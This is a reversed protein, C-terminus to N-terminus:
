LTVYRFVSYLLSDNIEWCHHKTPPMDITIYCNHLWRAFAESDPSTKTATVAVDLTGTCCCQVGPKVQPVPKRHTNYYGPGVPKRHTNYYGPSCWQQAVPMLCVSPHVSPRVFLLV